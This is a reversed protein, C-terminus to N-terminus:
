HKQLIKEVVDLVDVVPVRVPVLVHVVEEQHEVEQHFLKQNKL